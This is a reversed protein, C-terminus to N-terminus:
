TFTPHIYIYEHQFVEQKELLETRKSLVIQEQVFSINIIDNKIACQLIDYM